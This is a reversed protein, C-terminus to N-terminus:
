RRPPPRPRAARTAFLASCANSLRVTVTPLDFHRACAAPSQALYLVNQGTLEGRPDNAPAVNGSDTIGYAFRFLAAQDASM